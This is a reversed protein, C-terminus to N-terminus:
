GATEKPGVTHIHVARPKNYCTTCGQIKKARKNPPNADECNLRVFNSSPQCKGNKKDALADTVVTAYAAACHGSYM